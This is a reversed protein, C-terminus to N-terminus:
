NEREGWEWGGIVTATLTGDPLRWQRELGIIRAATGARKQEGTRVVALGWVIRRDESDLVAWLRCLEELLERRKTGANGNQPKSDPM